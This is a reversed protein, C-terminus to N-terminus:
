AVFDYVPTQRFYNPRKQESIIKQIREVTDPSLFQEGTERDVRAPVNEILFFQGNMELSYTIKTEILSQKYKQNM